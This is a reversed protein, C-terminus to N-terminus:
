FFVWYLDLRLGLWDLVLVDDSDFRVFDVVM